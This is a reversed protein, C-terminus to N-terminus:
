RVLNFHYPKYPPQYKQLIAYYTRVSEVYIVPAGGNAYGSKVRGYYKMKNLMPLTMKIDAWQNPNMGLKIALDRADNLHSLGINYAALTMWTRDPEPISSPIKSKIENLYRAGGLISERADLRNTVGMEDATEETLMMMGRVNTPSTNYQNWHSEQYSMAAILRWDLDTVEQAEKFLSVYSKLTDHMLGLFKSVDIPDLREVHGYYRDILNKLTGDHSIRNFFHLSKNYLWPDTKKPFAWAIKQSDGIQFGKVINPYYNQLLDITQENAITYDLLGFNVAEVLESVEGDNTEEWSLAPYNAKLHNLTMAYISGSPVHIHKGVLDTISQPEPSTDKNYVVLSRTDLYPPGFIVSRKREDNMILGSAAIHAKGSKLMPLINSIHNAPVFKVQYESGLDKVFLNALDYDLGAEKGNGDIYYSGPANHVLIVLEKSKQVNPVGKYFYVIAWASALAIAILLSAIAQKNLYKLGVAEL